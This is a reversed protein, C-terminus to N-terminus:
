DQINLLIEEGFKEIVDKNEIDLKSIYDRFLSIYNIDEGAELVIDERKEKIEQINKGIYNWSKEKFYDELNSLDIIKKDLENIIVRFRVITKSLDQNNLSQLFEDIKFKIEIEKNTLDLIFTKFQRDNLEVFEHEDKDVIYFGKKEGEEGFDVKAISGVHSCISNLEQQKHIDGLYVHTWVMPDFINIPLIRSCKEDSGVDFSKGAFSKDTGFHGFFYNYKKNRKKVEKSMNKINDILYDHFKENPINLDFQNVHPLFCLLSDDTEIIKPEDIIELNEIQSSIEALEVLDHGHTRGQDHNGLLIYVIINNSLAYKIKSTLMRRFIQAPKKTHYLDGLIFLTKINNDICYDITQQVNDLIDNTRTDVGSEDLKGYKYRGLHIDSILCFKM